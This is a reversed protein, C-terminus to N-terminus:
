AGSAKTAGEIPQGYGIPKTIQALSPGPKSSTGPQGVRRAQSARGQITIANVANLKMLEDVMASLKTIAAKKRPSQESPPGATKVPPNVFAPIGAAYNLSGAGISTGGSYISETFALKISAAKTVVDNAAAAAAAAPQTPIHIGLDRANSPSIRLLSRAM